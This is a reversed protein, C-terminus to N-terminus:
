TVVILASRSTSISWALDMPLARDWAWILIYPLSPPVISVMRPMNLEPNAMPSAMSPSAWERGWPSRSRKAALPRRPMKPLGCNSLLTRSIMWCSPPRIPM